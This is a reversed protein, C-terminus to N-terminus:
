KKDSKINGAPFRDLAREGTWRDGTRTGGRVVRKDVVCLWFVHPVCWSCCELARLWGVVRACERLMAFCVSQVCECANPVLHRMGVCVGLLAARSCMRLCGSVCSVKMYDKFLCACVCLLACVCCVFSCVCLVRLCAVNERWRTPLAHM